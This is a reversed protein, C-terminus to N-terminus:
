TADLIRIWKIDIWPLAVALESSNDEEGSYAALQHGPLEDLDGVNKLSVLPWIWRTHPSVDITSTGNQLATRISSPMMDTKFTVLFRSDWMVDVNEGSHADLVADTVDMSLSREMEGNRHRFPFQRSALWAHHTPKTGRSRIAEPFLIRKGEIGVPTWLVGSGAVFPTAHTEFPDPAWVTEVIRDIMKRRRNGDARLSGWPYFSCYRLIRLIMASRVTEDHINLLGNGSLLFTGPPSPLAHSELHHTAEDEIEEVGNSLNGVANRLKERGGSVDLHLVDQTAKRIGRLQEAIEDPLTNPLPPENGNRSLDKGSLMHRVANRLTLEPQFNTQDTVYELRHEDCTALIRDKSFSLMPRLIWKNMGAYGTWGLDEPGRGTGMGWRRIRRMGGAGLETTGRALRMLSTEVQDDAHHGFAISSAGFREMGKFLVSYRAERAIGEFPVSGSPRPPLPAEGWPIAATLHQIGLTGAMKQCQAAMSASSSQLSHDVTLSIVSRPPDDRKRDSLMRHTLFLLCTSDPGGSNAVALKTGLSGPPICKAFAKLFEGQTIPSIVRM